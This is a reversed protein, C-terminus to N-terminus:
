CGSGTATPLHHSTTSSRRARRATCRSRRQPNTLVRYGRQARRRSERLLRAGGPRAGAWTVLNFGSRLALPTPDAVVPQVWDIPATVLVWLAQGQVMTDLTNLFPPATANWTRFAQPAADFAAAAETLDIIDAIAEALPTDPGTWGALNWGEDLAVTRTEAIESQADAPADGVPVLGAGGIAALLLVVVFRFYTRM